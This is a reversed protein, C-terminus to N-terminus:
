GAPSPLSYEIELLLELTPEDDLREFAAQVARLAPGETLWAVVQRYAPVNTDWEANTLRVRGGRWRLGDATFDHLQRVAAGTDLREWGSLYPAVDSVALTLACLATGADPRSPHSALTRAWFAALFEELAARQPWQTWPVMGLKGFVIEVSPWVFADDAALELLRPAFYRFEEEAGWTTMAKAAYRRLDAAGLERLPRALLARDEDPAVCCPCGAVARPRPVDAFAAYLGEVAREDM